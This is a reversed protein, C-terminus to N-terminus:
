RWLFGHTPRAQVIQILVVMMGLGTALTVFVMLLKIRRM